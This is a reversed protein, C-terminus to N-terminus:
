ALRLRTDLADRIGDGFLNFGLVGLMISIGPFTAIWWQEQLYDRGVSLMAGWEPTPPQAGLGVFSLAAAALIAAPIQLSMLVVLPGTINPLVHRLMIGTSSSGIVQAAEIYPQQRTALTTARILRTSVPISSFAVALMANLIGPGLMASVSLALLLGPIALLIDMFRQIVFDLWGGVYGSSL